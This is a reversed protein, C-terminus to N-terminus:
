EFIVKNVNFLNKELNFNCFVSETSAKFFSKTNISTILM